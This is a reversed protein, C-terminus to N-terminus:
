IRERVLSFLSPTQEVDQRVGQPLPARPTRRALYPRDDLLSQIAEQVKRSDAIGDEDLMEDSVPLDDPNILRGDMEIMTRVLRENADTIKKAKVRHSAAEERLAKVYDASFTEPESEEGVPVQIEETADPVEPTLDNSM